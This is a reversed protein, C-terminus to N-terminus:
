TLFTCRASRKRDPAAKQRHCKRGFVKREPWLTSCYVPFLKQSSSIFAAEQLLLAHFCRLFLDYQANQSMHVGALGGEGLGHEVAGTGDALQAPHVMPVGKQVGIAQFFCAANGDKGLLRQKSRAIRIDGQQIGGAMHIKGGLGLAGQLHQVIGHQHDASRVAHLAMGFRQPPQQPAVM